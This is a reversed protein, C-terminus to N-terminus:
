FRRSRLGILFIGVIILNTFALTLVQVTSTAPTGAMRFLLPIAIFSGLFIFAAPIFLWIATQKHTM